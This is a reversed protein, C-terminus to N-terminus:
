LRSAIEEALMKAGEKGLHVPDKPSEDGRLYSENSFEDSRICQINSDGNHQLERVIESIKERFPDLPIGSKKSKITRTYLPRLCVIKTNPHNERITMILDKYDQAFTDADKGMFNWDNYGILLTILHIREWDKLQKAIPISIKAGGVALNFLHHDIRQSLLWPWNLFSASDQGVGHSISDGLAVYIPKPDSKLTELHFGNDVNFSTLHPNSWSPLVIEYTVSRRPYKTNLSLKHELSKNGFDISRVWEGNQYIGYNSGRNMEKVITKFSLSINPSKTRFRLVIGSSTRGNLPNFSLKHSKMAYLDPQFRLFERGLESKNEYKAGIVEINQDFISISTANLLTAKLLLAFTTLLILHKM